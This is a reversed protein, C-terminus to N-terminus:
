RAEAKSRCGKRRRTRRYPGVETSDRPEWRLRRERKEVKWKERIRKSEVM